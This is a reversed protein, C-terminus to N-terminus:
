YYPFGKKASLFLLLYFRKFICGFYFNNTSMKDGFILSWCYLFAPATTDMKYSFATTCNLDDLIVTQITRNKIVALLIRNDIM